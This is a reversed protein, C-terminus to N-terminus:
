NFNFHIDLNQNETSFKRNVNKNNEIISNFHNMVFIELNERDHFPIRFIVPINIQIIGQFELFGSELKLICKLNSIKQKSWHNLKSEVKMSFHELLRPFDLWGFSKKHNLSDIKFTCMYGFCSIKMEDGFFCGISLKCHPFFITLSHFDQSMINFNEDYITKHVIQSPYQLLYDPIISNYKLQILQSNDYQSQSYSILKKMSNKNKIEKITKITYESGFENSLLKFYKQNGSILTYSLKQINFKLDGEFEFSKLKLNEMFIAKKIRVNSNLDIYKLIQPLEEKSYYLKFLQHIEIIPCSNLENPDISFEYDVDQYGKFRCEVDLDVKENLIIKYKTKTLCHWGRVFQISILKLCVDNEFTAADDFEFNFRVKHQLQTQFGCKKVYISSFFIKQQHSLSKYPDFLLIFNMLSMEKKLYIYYQQFTKLTKNNMMEKYYKPHIRKEKENTEETIREIEASSCLKYFDAFLSDVVLGVIFSM